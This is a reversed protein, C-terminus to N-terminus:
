ATIEPILEPCYYWVSESILIDAQDTTLDTEEVATVFLEEYSYGDAFADCVTGALEIAASQNEFAIDADAMSQLFEKDTSSMPREAHALGATGLSAAGIVAAIATARILSAIPSTFM